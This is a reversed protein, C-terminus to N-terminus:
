AQGLRGILDSWRYLRTLGREAVRAKSVYSM